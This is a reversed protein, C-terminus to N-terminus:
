WYHYAIQGAGVILLTIALKENTHKKTLMKRNDIEKKKPKDMKLTASQGM